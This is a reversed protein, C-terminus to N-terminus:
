KEERERDKLKEILEDRILLFNELTMTVSSSMYPRNKKHAFVLAEKESEEQAKRLWNNITPNKHNKCEVNLVGTQDLIDGVRKSGDDSRNNSGSLSNRETDFIERAIWREYAKWSKGM